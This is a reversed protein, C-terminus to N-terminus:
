VRMKPCFCTLCENESRDHELRDHGCAACPETTKGTMLFELREAAWPGTAPQGSDVQFGESKWGVVHQEWMLAALALVGRGAEADGPSPFVRLYTRIHAEDEPKESVPLVELLHGVSCESCRVVLAMCKFEVEREVETAEWTHPRGQCEPM